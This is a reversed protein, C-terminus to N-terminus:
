SRPLQRDCHSVVCSPLGQAPLVASCRPRVRGADRRHHRCAAGVERNSALPPQWGPLGLRAHPTPACRRAWAPSHATHTETVANASASFPVAERRCRASALLGHHWGRQLPGEAPRAKWVPLPARARSDQLVTEPGHGFDAAFSTLRGTLKATPAKSSHQSNSSSGTGVIAFAIHHPYCYGLHALLLEM